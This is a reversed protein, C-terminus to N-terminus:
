RHADLWAEQEEDLNILDGNADFEHGNVTENQLLRGFQDFGVIRARQGDQEKTLKQIGTLAVFTKPDFFYIHDYYKQWGSLREGDESCLIFEGNLLRTGKVNRWEIKTILLLSCWM